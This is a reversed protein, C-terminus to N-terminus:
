TLAKANYKNLEGKASLFSIPPILSTMYMGGIGLAKM